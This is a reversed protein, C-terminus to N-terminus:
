QVPFPITPATFNATYRAYGKTVRLDNIYGNLTETGAGNAGVWSALSSLSTTLSTTSGVQTGNLFLRVSNSSRTIAFHTWTSTTITGSSILASGNVFFELATNRFALSWRGTTPDSGNVRNAIITSFGSTANLYAWGEITFDGTGFGTNESIPIALYDGTGDFSISGGTFKTVVSSSKADAVTELVTRGTSDLIAADTFNLLLQTNSTSSVPVAPVTISTQTADYVSSGKIVRLGSLYGVLPQLGEEGSNGSYAGVTIPTRTSNFIAGTETTTAVRVGNVFLSITNATRCAAVHYWQYPVFNTTDTVALENGGTTSYAFQIRSAVGTIGIGLYSSKNNTAWQTIFDQRTNTSVSYFWVEITFPSSGFNIQNNNVFSLYDGSGDFYASGGHAVPNYIATAAFPSFAQVSTNGNPTLVATITSNDKFRNDQGILLKTNPTVILPTAPPTFVTQGVTTSSTQYASPIGGIDLRLQSIYGSFTNGYSSVGYVGPYNTDYSTGIQIQTSSANSYNTTNTRLNILTGNLFIREENSANRTVVIHNWTNKTVPYASLTIGSGTLGWSIYNTSDIIGLAWMLNNANNGQSIITHISNGSSTSKSQLYVWSEISFQGTGIAYQANTPTLIAQSASATGNFYYSWGGLSFPSFTGQTANGNRTILFQNSSSDLFTHNNHPQDYQLTLLSTGTVATLLTTPPSFVTTNITTSSTQYAAPVSGKVIRLNSIYGNYATGSYGTGIRLEGTSTVNGTASANYVALNGNLFGRLVGGSRTYVLHNWSKVVLNSISYATGAVYLASSATNLTWDFGAGNYDSTAVIRDFTGTSISNPYIWTELCFDGTGLAFAANGPTTIYDGTGDFYMSGDTGTNTINFPNYSTVNVTNTKTFIFSNPSNDLLRNDQSTLLSVTGTISAAVNAGTHVVSSASLASNAPSFNGTFLAQGKIIRLNSIYGDFSNTANTGSNSGVYLASSYNDNGTVSSQSAVINGDLYLAATTGSRTVAVHHWVGTTFAGNYSLGIAAAGGSENMFFALNSVPASNRQCTLLWGNDVGSWFYKDVISKGFQVTTNPVNIWCEITFNGTGFNFAANQAVTLKGTSFYNSWAGGYPTFNSARADGLVTLNFNNTSSDKVVTNTSLASGSLLLTTLKFYPDSVIITIQFAQPTDQNEGDTAVITFNYTTEVTISSVTGSLLGGSTLSLGTPLTSGSALAYTVSTNSSAALQISIPSNKNGNPLPSTTSWTPTSSYNLGNVRIAVSSDSNTVYVTYTGAAQAPIQCRLETSSIYSISTAVLSGVVVQPGAAFGTGTIKIYGGSTSVATDDLVNYNSDTVQIATIKPVTTTAVDGLVRIQIQSGSPPASTFVVTNASVTYDSTPTQTVGDLIVLVTDVTIGSSANYITTTGDATYTYTTFQLGTGGGGGGGGGTGNSASTIQGSENVTINANTYSGATVGTSAINTSNIKTQM